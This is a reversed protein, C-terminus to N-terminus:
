KQENIFANYVKKDSLHLDNICKEAEKKSAFIRPHPIKGDRTDQMIIYLNSIKIEM